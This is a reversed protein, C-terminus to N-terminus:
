RRDNLTQEVTRIHQQLQRQTDTLTEWLQNLQALVQTLTTTGRDAALSDATPTEALRDDCIQQYLAMTLDSPRVGLEEDLALACRNFQRLATARDGTLYYLRMMQCHTSERARDYRLIRRGYLLGDEYTRQAECYVVLKDLMALYMSQFREREYLCWEQYWGELLDATYLDVAARLEEACRQDIAVGAVGRAQSFVRDIALADVWRDAPLNLQVWEPEVQLPRKDGAAGPASLATQLQWLTHRLCKKAQATPSDGWLLAALTERPHPHDHYLLLYSFLEQVKRADFGALPRDDHCISLKGFLRISLECMHDTEKAAPLVNAYAM